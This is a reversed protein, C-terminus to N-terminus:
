PEAGGGRFRHHDQLGVPRAQVRDRVDAPSPPGALRGDGDRRRHPRAPPLAAAGSPRGARQSRRRTGQRHRAAAGGCLTRAALRHPPHDRHLDPSRGEARWARDARAPRDRPDHARRGHLPSVHRVPDARRRPRFRARLPRVRGGREDMPAGDGSRAPEDARGPVLRQRACRVAGPHLELGHKDALAFMEILRVPDQEFFDDSPLALRGRVLRFGNLKRPRRPIAALTFRRGPRAFQEDLHALFLGTLDGVTKAQLFYYHMFREVASKGPRTAYNMREAIERQYDFTLREEARGAILHLHCRVAWLFNEARQFQHFEDPTLLGAEVLGAVSDVRHIYKGIWFLTHLDRLGGKGEKVNPEVVYRSDGMRQHRENREELKAAVFARDTGAVVERRFRAIGEDNLAQDGWIFRGELLATRVTLDSEAMRVMDDLSRSSHGVKLGLDWLTYLMSEIVQEVWGTQKWPTLFMIDVDSYPAMEGRGYGGVGLLAIREGATPNSVPYLRQTTVDFVLRLIQDVLFAQAAAAELGRSPNLMLRDGIEGRGADLAAKLLAVVRQRLDPGADLAAIADALARRDVITRRNPVSDLRSAM